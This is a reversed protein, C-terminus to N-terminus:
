KTAPGVKAYALSRLNDIWNKVMDVDALKMSPNAKKLVDLEKQWFAYVTKALNDQGFINDAFTRIQDYYAKKTATDNLVLQSLISKWNESLINKDTSNPFIQDIGCPIFKFQIDGKTSDPDSKAKVDNYVYTNNMNWDYGDWHCLLSEMAYFKIYDNWTIVRKAGTLGNDKIEKAAAQLDKRDKFASLGEVSMSGKNIKDPDFDDPNRIEYANGKDSTFRNELFRKKLAEM